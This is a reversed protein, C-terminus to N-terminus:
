ALTVPSAPVESISEFLKVPEVAAEISTDSAVLSALKGTLENV